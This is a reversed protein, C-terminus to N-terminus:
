EVVPGRQGHRHWAVLDRVERKAVLAEVERVRPVVQLRPPYDINSKSRVRRCCPVRVDPNGFSAGSNGSRKRPRGANSAERQPPPQRSQARETADPRMWGPGGAITS